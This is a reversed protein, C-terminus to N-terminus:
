NNRLLEHIRDQIRGTSKAKSLKFAIKGNKDILFYWPLKKVKYLKAIQSRYVDKGSAALHYGKVENANVFKEWAEKNKDLSIYVFAVEDENFQSKWVKSNKMQQVCPSCWTAWFDLYVVKGQLDALSVINGNIDALEFEPAKMGISLGKAENYVLRLVDNYTEYPNNEIFRKIEEGRKKAKGRKCAIALKKAKFYALPEGVLYKEALQQDNLGLNDAHESQYDFFQDLFYTYFNNPLAGEMSIPIESLFNYFPEPMKMPADMNNAFPYEWQYNLMTYGYWFVIDAKAFDKFANSFNNFDRHGNLYELKKAKASNLETQFLQWEFKESNKKAQKDVEAFKINKSKLYNNHKSGKGSFHITKSFENGKFHIQMLDGPEVYVEVKKDGYSLEGFSPESLNLDLTFTKSNKLPLEHVIEELTIPDTYLKLTLKRGTHFDVSGSFSTSTTTRTRPRPDIDIFDFAPEAFVMPKSKIMQPASPKSIVGDTNPESTALIPEEKLVVESKPKPKSLINPREVLRGTPQQLDKNGLEKALIADLLDNYHAYPNVSKFDAINKELEKKSFATSRWYLDSAVLYYLTQGTFLENVNRYKSSQSINLKGKSALKTTENFKIGAGHIWGKEGKTSVVQYWYDEKQEDKIQIPSTEESKEGLYKLATGKEVQELIPPRNPNSFVLMSPADVLVSQDSFEVDTESDFLHNKFLIYQDLFFLYNENILALENSILTEELFSYYAIPLPEPENIGNYIPHEIRYRLLNYARWYDIEAKVFADFEKSFKKKDFSNFHKYFSWMRSHIKDMYKRFDMADREALEYLVYDFSTEPFLHNFNKLYRCKEAGKGSFSISSAFSFANAHVRLEDTPDLFIPIEIGDYVLFAPTPANLQFTIAFNNLGDLPLEFLEEDRSLFDRYFKIGVSKVTPNSIHGSLKTLNSDEQKTQGFLTLGNLFSGLFLMFVIKFLKSKKYQSM